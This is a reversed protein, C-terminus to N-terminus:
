HSKEITIGKAALQTRMREVEDLAVRANVRAAAAEAESKAIGAQIKADLIQPSNISQMVVAGLALSAFIIAVIALTRDPISVTNVNVHASESGRVSQDTCRSNGRAFGTGPDSAMIHKVRQEIQEIAAEARWWLHTAKSLLKEIASENASDTENM